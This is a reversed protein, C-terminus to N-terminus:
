IWEPTQPKIGTQPADLWAQYWQALEEKKEPTLKAYWLEGRNVVPFCVREREERLRKIEEEQWNPRLTIDIYDSHENMDYKRHTVWWKIINKRESLPYKVNEEYEM